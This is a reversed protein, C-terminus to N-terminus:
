YRTSNVLIAALKYAFNGVGCKSSIWGIPIRSANSIIPVRIKQFCFSYLRSKRTNIITM